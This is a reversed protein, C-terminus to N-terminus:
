LGLLRASEDFRRVQARVEDFSGRALIRAHEIYVVLDADRVTALRHAIVVTTVRGHLSRLARAIAAETEADLASTAEDLVLLRPESYLARAMGLRQRQGGSLKAGREGVETDLGTRKTRLFDDLKVTALAHWVAEDNIESEPLGLAVNNRVSGSVLSVSQPVYALM